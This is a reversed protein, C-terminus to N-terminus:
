DKGGTVESFEKERFVSLPPAEELSRGPEYDFAAQTVRALTQFLEMVPIDNPCANSCQGCGVCATSMHALRTLHFFVTDTPMKVAGKRRSWRMYQGPDHDFVDTTFVCERCYCVPCAVRCNHCNVCHSLYQILKEMDSTAEATERFMAERKENRTALLKRIAEERGAPANAPPLRLNSLVTEGAPSNAMVFLEGAPDAGLTGLTIDCAGPVPHACVRCAPSLLDEPGGGNAMGKLFHETAGDGHEAAYTRYDENRMAGPCDLGIILLDDVSGQKLKVLEVFARIECPRLVVAVRDGVPKRTLRSVVKAANLPFAPALPDAEGLREVDSVLAPMVATGGQIHRAVLVAKAEGRELLMRLFAQVAGVLGRGEVGIKVGKDM